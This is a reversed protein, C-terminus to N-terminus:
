RAESKSGVQEIAQILRHQIDDLRSASDLKQGNRETVYFVDVVQDLHTGIKATKISLELEFLERTIAYLLGTRNPAFIELITADKSTANDYLVRTPMPSLTSANKRNADWIKRFRPQRADSSKLTKVLIESIRNIRADESVSGYEPDVVHFRDIILGQELTNIQASLIDFGEGTLAGTLKHFIGSTISEYACVVFELIGQDGVTSGWAVADDRTLDCALSLTSAITKPPTGRLYAAPLAAIQALLWKRRPHDFVCAAVNRRCRDIEERDSKIPDERSLHQMTRQFLQTLLEIKWDNLVGPGVSALDAASMVYLMQLTEPSGIELALQLVVQQDDIDRWLALHTMLLHKHVLLALTEQQRETLGLRDATELAIRRGVESHDEPYGKGVDHLLLALHLIHKNAISKYVKGLPGDDQAFETACQVARLCHEDVTYKHYENFQLLGRARHFEPIFKELVELEHLRNLIRFLQPPRSLLAMFRTAAEPPVQDPATAAAERVAEWTDHGIRKDYLTALEALRLVEILDCRLKEMGSPTAVIFYPGVRYDREVRHSLLSGVFGQVRSRRYANALFRASIYRVTRTYRFYERMFQEVAQLGEVNRFGYLEALRVQEARDLRDQPSKAHFHLENRIKLLFETAARLRDREEQSLVGALYLGDPDTIGYCCFGIWRVLQIDRLGGRSRKVNPELLYITEGYQRRESRREADMAPLVSRRRRAAFKRLRQRMRRTLEENGALHRSDTLSTLTQPDQRALSLTERPTRISQGLILRTDCIDRVLREALAIIQNRVRPNYMVMLDIDSYPALERRGYGGHAVLAVNQEVLQRSKSDKDSFLDHLAQQFLDVIVSDALETFQACVHIGHSGMDHQKRLLQRGLDIRDKAVIVAPRLNTGSTM